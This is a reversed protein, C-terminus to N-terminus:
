GPLRRTETAWIYSLTGICFLMWFKSWTLAALLRNTSAYPGLWHLIAVQMLYASVPTYSDVPKIVYRERCRTNLAELWGSPHEFSSSPLLQRSLQCATNQFMLYLMPSAQRIWESHESCEKSFCVLSANNRRYRWHPMPISKGSSYGEKGLSYLVPRM